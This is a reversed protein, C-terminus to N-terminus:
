RSSLRIHCGSLFGPFLSAASMNTLIAFAYSAYTTICTIGAVAKRKQLNQMTIKGRGVKKSGGRKLVM